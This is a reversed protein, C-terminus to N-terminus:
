LLYQVITKIKKELSIHYWYYMKLYSIATQELNLANEWKELLYLLLMTALIDLHM